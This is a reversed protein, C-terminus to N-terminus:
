GNLARSMPSRRGITNGKTELERDAGTESQWIITHFFPFISCSTRTRMSSLGKEMELDEHVFDLVERASKSLLLIFVMPFSQCLIPFYKPMRFLWTFLKEVDNKVFTYIQTRQPINQSIRVWPSTWQKPLKVCPKAPNKETKCMITRGKEGTSM